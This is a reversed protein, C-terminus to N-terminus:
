HAFLLKVAQRDIAGKATHPLSEVIDLRAPVEYPALGTRCQALIDDASVHAAAPVVAAGVQEGYTADPIAFM